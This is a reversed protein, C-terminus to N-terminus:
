QPSDQEGAEEEAADAAGAEPKAQRAPLGGAQPLSRGRAAATSAGSAPRPVPAPDPESAAKRPPRARHRVPTRNELRDAGEVVVADGAHLDPARVATVGGATVGREVAHLVATQDAGVTFLYDGNRGRRVAETPVVLAGTVTGLELRTNVFRNPYLRGKDNDFVAKMRVTGTQTDVRNDIAVLRGRDLVRRRDRDLAQVALGSGRWAARIREVQEESVQFVVSTPKVSEVVVVGDLDEPSVMNGADVQRLGARGAIPSRLTAYSIQVKIEEILGQDSMVAGRYQEVLAKQADIQQQAMSGDHLAGLDRELEIQANKLLARDRLMAGEAQKLKAHLERADIVALVQGKNVRAGERFPTSLLQGSIRPRVRVTRLPTVTGLADLTQMLDQTRVPETFVPVPVPVAATAPMAAGQSRLHWAAAALGTAAAAALFWHIKM